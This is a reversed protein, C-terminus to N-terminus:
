HEYCDHSCTARLRSLLDLTLRGLGVKRLQFLGGPLLLVVSPLPSSGAGIRELRPHAIRGAETAHSDDSSRTIGAVGVAGPVPKSAQAGSPGYEGDITGPRDIVVLILELRQPLLPAFSYAPM